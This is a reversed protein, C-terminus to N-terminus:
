YDSYDGYLKYAGGTFGLKAEPLFMRVIPPYLFDTIVGLKQLGIYMTDIAKKKTRSDIYDLIIQATAGDPVFYGSTQGIKFLERDIKNVGHELGDRINQKKERHFEKMDKQLPSTIDGGLYTFGTLGRLRGLGEFDLLCDDEMIVVDKLDESVIRELLGRHSLYCAVVKKRYPIKANYRFSFQNVITEDVDEWWVGQCLEYPIDTDLYKKSRLPYANVVFVRM